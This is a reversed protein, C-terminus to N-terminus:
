ISIKEKIEDIKKKYRFIGSNWKSRHKAATM